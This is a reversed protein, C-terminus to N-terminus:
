QLRNPPHQTSQFPHYFQWWPKPSRWVLECIMGHPVHPRRQFSGRLSRALERAQATGRGERTVLSFNSLGNDIVQLAYWSKHHRCIVDLCSADVTHNGVNCLAEQLFICLAQKQDTSLPCEKLPTFDPPILTRISAFGPLDRKLTNEYIQYLLEHIPTQTYRQDGTAIAQHMSEYVSRLEQNLAQLQSRLKETPLDDLSRLIAALTQLPGNHVSDYTRKLTLSRQELLLRADRDFLATTLGAAILALLAPVVPVWWSIAMFGYSLTLLCAGSGALGLFTKWPSQLLLGLVIGLVGWFLIWLYEAGKSWSSLLPRQDLVASILQSISHAHNEVGYLLQYDDDSTGIAKTILSGKTAFTTVTDNLSNPATVGVLVIRDRLWEPQARGKLVETMSIVRFPRPHSRFNLLIQNGGAKAQVYGGTNARFRPLAILGLQIPDSARTGHQLMIGKTRLYHAALLLSLSYKIKGSSVKSALLCRRLKGDSDLVIDALGVQSAPLEPPPKVKLKASGGGDAEIGILNPSTRFVQALEARNPDTTLDRFLDLGIVAPQYRQLNRLLVALEHDPIPYKGVLRIDEENIGVIVVREDPPELPRSRLFNDFTALELLQLSGTMRAIAVLGIVVLGPLLGIRWVTAHQEIQKWLGANVKIKM